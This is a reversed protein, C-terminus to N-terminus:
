RVMWSTMSSMSACMRRAPRACRMGECSWRTARWGHSEGVERREPEEACEEDEDEPSSSESSMVKGMGAAHQKAAVVLTIEIGDDEAEGDIAFHVVYGTVGEKSVGPESFEDRIEVGEGDFAAGSVEGSHLFGNSSELGSVRQEDKGFASACAIAADAGHVAADNEESAAGANGDDGGGDHADKVAPIAVVGEGTDSGDDDSIAGWQRRFADGLQGVVLADGPHAVADQFKAVGIGFEGQQLACVVCSAECM